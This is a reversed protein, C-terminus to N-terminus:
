FVLMPSILTISFSYLIHCISNKNFYISSDKRSCCSIGRGAEGGKIGLQDRHHATLAVPALIGDITAARKRGPLFRVADIFFKIAKMYIGITELKAPETPHWDSIYLGSSEQLHIYTSSDKLSNEM